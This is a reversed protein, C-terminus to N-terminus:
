FLHRGGGFHGFFGGGEGGLAREPLRFDPARDHMEQSLADAVPRRSLQQDSAAENQSQAQAAAPADQARAPVTALGTALALAASCLMWHSFATKSKGTM